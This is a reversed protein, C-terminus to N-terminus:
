AGAEPHARVPSKRLDAILSQSLMASVLNQGLNITAAGGPFLFMGIGLLIVLRVNRQPIAVNLLAQILLPPVLSAGVGLVVLLIGLL